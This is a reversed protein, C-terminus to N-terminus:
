SWEQIDIQQRRYRDAFSTAIRWSILLGGAVGCAVTILRLVPQDATGMLYGHVLAVAWMAYTAWHIGRWFREPIRHRLVSTAVIAILLDVGLTGFGVLVTEYGSVFPVVTALWGIDVYGDSIATVIHAALFVLMGLSLWRHVGMAVTASHGHPRRRGATIVGLIVVITLLIMSVVGTARSLYWLASGTM